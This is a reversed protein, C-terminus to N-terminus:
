IEALMHEGASINCGPKDEPFFRTVVGDEVLMSYRLSRGFFGDPPWDFEMGIARTFAGVADGLMTIGAASAGTAKGWADMVFPDNVSVCIIEDVGKDALAKATRIFSPVHATSCTSTFAGPLGFIVVKRGKVIDSVSVEKGDDGNLRFLTAEPLPDGIRITKESM